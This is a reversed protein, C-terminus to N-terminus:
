GGVFPALRMAGETDELDLVTVEGAGLNDGQGSSPVFPTGPSATGGASARYLTRSCAHLLWTAGPQINTTM